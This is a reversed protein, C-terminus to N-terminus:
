RKMDGPQPNDVGSVSVTDGAVIKSENDAYAVGGGGVIAIALAASAIQKRTPKAMHYITKM